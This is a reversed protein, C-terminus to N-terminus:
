LLLCNLFIMNTCFKIKYSPPPFKNPPPEATKNLGRNLSFLLFAATIFGMETTFKPSQSSKILPYKSEFHHYPDFTTPCLVSLNYLHSYSIHLLRPPLLGEAIFRWITPSMRLAIEVLRFHYCTEHCLYHSTTHYFRFLHAFAFSNDAALYRALSPICNM